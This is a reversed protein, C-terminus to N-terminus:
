ASVRIEAWDREIARLTDPDEVHKAVTAGMASMVRQLTELSLSSKERVKQAREVVRSVSEALQAIEQFQPIPQPRAKREQAEAEAFEAENWATLAEVLEDFREGFDVVVARILNAEPVLDLPDPDNELESLLQQIRPRQIKSYRGHRIPNCGGHFKCRGQGLHDTGFGAPHQCTGGSRTKAGCKM